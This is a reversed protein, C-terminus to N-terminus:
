HRGRRSGTTRWSGNSVAQAGIMASRVRRRPPRRVCQIEASDDAPRYFPAQSVADDPIPIGFRSRFERYEQENLQKQQYAVNRGEGAEGLGYGKITHALVVTPQGVTEVAAKYAAYVKAPDHGGRLLGHLEDDSLHAVLELLEPYGGFFHERMYAGPSVSYKQFEGDVVEGMRQVLLGSEGKGRFFHNLGVEFM